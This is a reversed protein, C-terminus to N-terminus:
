GAVTLEAARRWKVSARGCLYTGLLSLTLVSGCWQPARARHEDLGWRLPVDPPVQLVMLMVTAYMAATVAFVIALVRLTSWDPTAAMWLIFIGQLGTGLLVARAWEPATQLNLYRIAPAASFAAILGLFFALWQLSAIKGEDPRYLRRIPPRTAAARNPDLRKDAPRDPSDISEGASVTDPQPLPPPGGNAEGGDEPGPVIVEHRCVPCRVRQGSEAAEAKLRHGAPCFFKITM